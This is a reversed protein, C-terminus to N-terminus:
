RSAEDQQPAHRTVPRGHETWAKLGGDLHAVDTYGIAQLTQAALAADSTCDRHRLVRCALSPRMLSSPDDVLGAVRM